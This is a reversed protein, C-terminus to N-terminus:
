MSVIINNSIVVSKTLQFSLLLVTATIHPETFDALFFDNKKKM